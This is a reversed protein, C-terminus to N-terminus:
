PAAYLTIGVTWKSFTPGFVRGLSAAYISNSYADSDGFAAVVDHYRTLIWTKTVENYWVPHDHRLSEWVPFPDTRFDEHRKSGTDLM